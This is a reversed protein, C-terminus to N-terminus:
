LEKLEQLRRATDPTSGQPRSGASVRTVSNLFKAVQAQDYGSVGGGYAVFICNDFYVGYSQVTLKGYPSPTEVVYDLVKGTAGEDRFHSEVLTADKAKMNEKLWELAEFRTTDGYKLNDSCGCGSGVILKDDQTYFSIGVYRDVKWNDPKEIKGNPAGPFQVTYPCEGIRTPTGAIYSDTLM